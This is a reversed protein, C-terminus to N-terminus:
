RCDKKASLDASGNKLCGVLGHAQALALCSIPTERQDLRSSLRDRRTDLFEVFDLVERLLEPPLRQTYLHLQDLLTM